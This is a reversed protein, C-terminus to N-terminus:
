IALSDLIGVLVSGTILGILSYVVILETKTLHDNHHDKPLYLQQDFM